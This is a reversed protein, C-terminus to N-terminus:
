SRTYHDFTWVRVNIETLGTGCYECFKGEGLSRVPAGCNPCNHGKMSLDGLQSVDQIYVADIIYKYQALDRSGSILQGEKLVGYRYQLAIEIRITKTGVGSSYRAICAKHVLIDDFFWKEGKSHIDNLTTEVQQKLNLSLRSVDTLEGKELANLIMVLTNSASSLFEVADFEPFDRRILDSYTNTLNQLQRPTQNSQTEVAEVVDGLTGLVNLSQHIGRGLGKVVTFVVAVVAILVVAGLILTLAM